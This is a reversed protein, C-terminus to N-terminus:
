TQSWCGCVFWIQHRLPSLHAICHSSFPQSPFSDYLLLSKLTLDHSTLLHLLTYATPSTHVYEKVSVIRGRLQQGAELQALSVRDASAHLRPVEPEKTSDYIEKAKIEARTLPRAGDRQDLRVNKAGRGSGRGGSSSSSGSGGSGRGGGRGRGTMLLVNARCTSPLIRRNVHPSVFSYAHDLSTLLVGLVVCATFFFAKM